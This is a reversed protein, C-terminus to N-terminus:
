GGFLKAISQGISIYINSDQARFISFPADPTGIFPRMLWAMQAGVIGYTILWWNMIAATGRKTEDSSDEGTAPALGSVGRRLFWVGYAGAIVFIFWNLLKIFDYNRTSLMFFMLILACSALVISTVSISAVLLGLIVRFRARPGILVNLVYLLPFCIVLTLLFLLPLKVGSAVAFKWGEARGHILGQSGMVLGYFVTLLIFVWFCSATNSRVKKEDQLDAAVQERNRLLHDAYGIGNM